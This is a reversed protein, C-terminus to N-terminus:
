FVSLLNTCCSGETDDGSGVWPKSTNDPPRRFNKLRMPRPDFRGDETGSNMAGGSALWINYATPTYITSRKVSHGEAKSTMTRPASKKRRRRRNIEPRSKRRVSEGHVESPDDREQVAVIATPIGTVRYGGCPDTRASM